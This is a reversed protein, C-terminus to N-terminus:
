MIKERGCKNLNLHFKMSRFLEIVLSLDDFNYLRFSIDNM